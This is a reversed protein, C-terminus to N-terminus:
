HDFSLVWVVKGTELRPFLAYQFYGCIDKLPPSVYMRQIQKNITVKEVFHVKDNKGGFHISVLHIGGVTKHRYRQFKVTM